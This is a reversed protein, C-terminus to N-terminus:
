LKKIRNYVLLGAVRTEPNTRKKVDWGTIKCFLEHGIKSGGFPPVLEYPINYKIMFKEIQSGIENNRGVDKLAGATRRGWSKKVAHGSELRVLLKFGKMDLLMKMTDFLDLNFLTSEEEPDFPFNRAIGSKDVDPDIGIICDFQTNAM